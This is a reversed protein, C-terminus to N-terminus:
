AGGDLPILAYKGGLLGMPFPGTALITLSKLSDAMTMTVNTVYVIASEVPEGDITAIPPRDRLAQVERHLESIHKRLEKKSQKKTQKV